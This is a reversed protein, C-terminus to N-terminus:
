DIRRPSFLFTVGPSLSTTGGGPRPGSPHCCGLAAFCFGAYRPTKGNLAGSPAPDPPIPASGARRRITLRQRRRLPEVIQQLIESNDVSPTQWMQRSSRVSSKVRPAFCSSAGHISMRKALTAPSDKTTRRRPPMGAFIPIRASRTSDSAVGGREPAPVSRVAGQLPVCCGARACCFAACRVAEKGRRPPFVPAV